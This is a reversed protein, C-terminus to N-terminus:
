PEVMYETSYNLMTEEYSADADNNCAQVFGVIMIIIVVIAVIIRERYM